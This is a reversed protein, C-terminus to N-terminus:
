ISKKLMIRVNLTADGRRIQLAVSTGDGSRLMQRITEMKLTTAPQHNVAEIVDNAMVGQAAAPSDANVSYVVTKEGLRLLHLGSMDEVDSMAFERDPQLYLRGAAFDFTVNHRRFYRLGLRSPRHANKILMAHLNTYNLSGVSMQGVTGIETQAVNNVADAVTAGATKMQNTGFVEQWTSQNLSLSGSDGTDIMLNLPKDQNVTAAMLYYGRALDVSVPAYTQKVIEPTENELTLTHNDFNIDVVNRAFWDGGLIGDCPEGTIQRLMSLDLKVVEALAVPRGAVSLNPGPYVPVDKQGLASVATYTDLQGGLYSEYVSDVASITFGTDVIFYLTRNFGQVPVLIMDGDGLIPVTQGRVVSAWLLVPLCLFILWSRVPRFFGAKVLGGAVECVHEKQDM